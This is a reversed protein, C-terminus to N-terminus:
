SENKDNYRGNKGSFICPLFLIVGISLLCFVFFLVLATEWSVKICFICVFLILFVISCIICLRGALRNAHDWTEKNKMVPKMHYGTEVSPYESHKKILVIGTLLLVICMTLYLFLVGIMGM